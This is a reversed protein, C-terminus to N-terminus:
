FKRDVRNLEILWPTEKRVREYLGQWANLQMAETHSFALRGDVEGEAIWHYREMQSNRFRTPDMSKALTISGGPCMNRVVYGTDESINPAVNTYPNKVRRAGMARVFIGKVGGYKLISLDNGMQSSIRVKDEGGLPCDLQALEKWEKQKEKLDSQQWISKLELELAKKPLEVQKENIRKLEKLSLIQEQIEQVRQAEAVGLQDVSPQRYKYRTACGSLVLLIVFLVLLKKTMLVDGPLM